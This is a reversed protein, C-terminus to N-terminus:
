RGVKHSVRSGQNGGDKWEDETYAGARSASSQFLRAAIWGAALLARGRAVMRTNEASEEKAGQLGLAGDLGPGQLSHLAVGMAKIGRPACM